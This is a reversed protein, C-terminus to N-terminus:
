FGQTAAQLQDLVWMSVAQVADERWSLRGPLYKASALARQQKELIGVDELAVKEWRDYYPAAKAEFGPEAAVHAPFCGGVELLTRDAAIPTVNLWWM